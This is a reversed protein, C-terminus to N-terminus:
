KKLKGIGIVATMTKIKKGSKSEKNANFVGGGFM